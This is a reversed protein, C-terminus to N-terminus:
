RVERDLRAMLASARDLFREREGADTGPPAFRQRDCHELCDLLESVTPEQAGHGRLAMGIEGLQMGAESVNLRDAVLGRLARAVEAYFSRTDERASIRRAEALRRRAVRGARRGRAYAVDGELRDQHRRLGLAGLVGATPLLVFVWFLADSFLFSDAPRLHGSGLHIFRIDERLQAVGGRAPGTPGEAATGTVTLALDETRATRYAEADLDFYGMELGPIVRRGPARPILVYEFTTTGALGSGSRRV